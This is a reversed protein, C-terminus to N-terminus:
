PTGEEDSVGELPVLVYLHEKGPGHRFMPTIVGSSEDRAVVAVEDSFTERVKHVLANDDTINGTSPLVVLGEEAVDEERVIEPSSPEEIADNVTTSVQSAGKNEIAVRHQPVGFVYWATRRGVSYFFASVQRGGEWATVAIENGFNFVAGQMAEFVSVRQTTAHLSAVLQERIEMRTHALSSKMEVVMRNTDAFMNVPDLLYVGVAGAGEVFSHLASSSLAYMAKPTAHSLEFIAGSIKDAVHSTTITNFGFGFYTSFVIVFAAALALTRKILSSGQAGKRGYHLPEWDVEIEKAKKYEIKRESSLTQQRVEKIKTNRNAFNKLDTEFVYWTRGVLMGHLQGTRCLRSVYDNTYGVRAAAARSSLYKKGGLIIQTQYAM